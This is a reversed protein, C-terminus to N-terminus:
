PSSRMRPKSTDSRVTELEHWPPRGIGLWPLPPTVEQAVVALDEKRHVEEGNRRRSEAHEVDAHRLMRGSPPDDLLKALRERVVGSRVVEDEVVVFRAAGAGVARRTRRTTSGRRCFAGRAPCPCATLSFPWRSASCRHRSRRGDAFRRGAGDIRTAGLPRLAQTTSRRERDRRRPEHTPVVCSSVIRSGHAGGVGREEVEDVREFPRSCAGPGQFDDDPSGSEIKAFSM